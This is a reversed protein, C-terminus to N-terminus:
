PQLGPLMGMMQVPLPVPPMMDPRTGWKCFVCVVDRDAATSDLFTQARTWGGGGRVQSMPGVELVSEFMEKM